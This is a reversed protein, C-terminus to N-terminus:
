EIELMTKVEIENLYIDGMQILMGYNINESVFYEKKVFIFTQNNMYQCKMNNMETEIELVLNSYKERCLALDELPEFEEDIVKKIEDIRRLTEQKSDTVAQKEILLQLQAQNKSLEAFMCKRAREIREIEEHDNPESLDVLRREAEIDIDEHLCNFYDNLFITPFLSLRDLNLYRERIDEKLTEIFTKSKKEM